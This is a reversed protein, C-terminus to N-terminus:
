STTLIYFSKDVSGDYPKFARSSSTATRRQRVGGRIRQFNRLLKNGNTNGASITSSSTSTVELKNPNLSRFLINFNMSNAMTFVVFLLMLAIM